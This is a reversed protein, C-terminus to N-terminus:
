PKLIVPLYLGFRVEIYGEKTVTDTGGPGDVTLSVTYVGPAM